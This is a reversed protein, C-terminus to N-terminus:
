EINASFSVGDSVVLADVRSERASVSSVSEDVDNRNTVDCKVFIGCSESPETEPPFLDFNYVRYGRSLAPLATAKGKGSSDGTVICTDPM